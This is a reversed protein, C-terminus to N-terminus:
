FPGGARVVHLLRHDRQWTERALGRFLEALAGYIWVAEGEPLIALAREDLMWHSSSEAIVGAVNIPSMRVIRYHRRCDGTMTM